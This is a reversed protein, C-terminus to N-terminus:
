DSDHVFPDGGAQTDRKAELIDINTGDGGLDIAHSWQFRAELIRGVRWYADGLHENIEPVEPRLLVARELQEVAEGYRGLKYLAWGLSDVINGDNPRLEVAKRIMALARDLNEGRVVWSYGLYNLVVPQDPSLELAMLLDAEAKDWQDLEEFTTGRTYYLSWQNEGPQAIGNIIGDYIKRAKDPESQRRYIDALTIAVTLDDPNTGRMTELIRRAEDVNGMRYQMTAYDRQAEWHLPSSPTVAAFAQVAAMDQGSAEYLNGLLMRAEDSAPMLFQALQAYIIAASRTGNRDLAQATDFFVDSLGEAPSAVVPVERGALVNARAVVVMPNGPLAKLYDDYLAVADDERGSSALFRGYALLTRPTAGGPVTLTKQFAQEAADDRGARALILAQHFHQFSAFSTTSDLKALSALADDTRGLGQLVWAQVLPGVLTNFGTAPMAQALELAQAYRGRKVNDLVLLLPALSPTDDTEMLREALPLAEDFRGNSLSASFSRELLTQNTPDSALAESYYLASADMENLQGAVRGALYPGFPANGLVNKEISATQPGSGGSSACGGLLLAPLLLPFGLLL